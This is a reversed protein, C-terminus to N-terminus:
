LEASSGFAKTGRGNVCDSLIPYEGRRPTYVGFLVVTLTM